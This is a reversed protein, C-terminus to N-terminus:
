FTAAINVVTLANGFNPMTLTNETVPGLRATERNITDLGWLRYM